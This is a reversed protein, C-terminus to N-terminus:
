YSVIKGDYLSTASVIVADYLSLYPVSEYSKTEATEDEDTTTDEEDSTGAATDCLVYGDQSLLIEIRRFSVTGGYLIYVGTVNVGDYDVVRVATLPVKYGSYSAATITVPQMRSYDFDSPMTESVFILYAEGSSNDSLVKYLPLSLTVDESDFSIEYEEDVTFLGAMDTDTPVALYWIYTNVLKGAEYGTLDEEEACTMNKIDTATLSDIDDFAFASEYGDVGYFYYASRDSVITEAVNTMEALLASREAELAEIEDEYGDIEGTVLGRLNMDSLLDEVLTYASSLSKKSACSRIDSLTSVISTDIRNVDSVSAYEASSMAEELLEIKADLEDIQSRLSSSGSKYVDALETGVAVKEGNSVLYNLTGT